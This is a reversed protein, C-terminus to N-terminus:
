VGLGVIVEAGKALLVDVSVVTTADGVVKDVPFVVISEAPLVPDTTEGWDFEAEDFPVVANSAGLLRGTVTMVILDVVVIQDM